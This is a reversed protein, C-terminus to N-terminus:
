LTYVKYSDIIAKAPAPINSAGRNIFWHEIVLKIATKIDEDVEDSKDGYGCTYEIVIPNSLALTISPWTVNYKLVLRGPEGALDVDYNSAAFTSEDGNRDTYKLSAVSSLPCYPIELYDAFSPFDDYYAFWQQEILKRNTQQEFFNSAGKVLGRLLADDDSDSSDVDCFIKAEELSVAGKTPALKIKSRAANVRNEM